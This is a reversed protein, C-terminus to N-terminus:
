TTGDKVFLRNERLSIRQPKPMLAILAEAKNLLSFSVSLRNLPDLLEEIRRWTAEGYESLMHQYAIFMKEM